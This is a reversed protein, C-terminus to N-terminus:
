AALEVAVLVEGAEFRRPEVRVMSGPAFEWAEDEPDYDEPAILRVLGSPLLEAPVPRFVTTGEGLLQM